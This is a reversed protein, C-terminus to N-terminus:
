KCTALRHSELGQNGGGYGRESAAKLLLHFELHTQKPLPLLPAGPLWDTVGGPALARLSSHGLPCPFVGTRDTGDQGM